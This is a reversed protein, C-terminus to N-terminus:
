AWKPMNVFVWKKGLKLPTSITKWFPGQPLPLGSGAYSCMRNVIRFLDGGAGLSFQEKEAELSSPGTAHSALLSLINGDTSSSARPASSMPRLSSVVKSKFFGELLVKWGRDQKGKFSQSGEPGKCCEFIGRIGFKDFIQGSSQKEPNWDPPGLNTLFRDFIQFNTRLDNNEFKRCIKSLQFGSFFCDEPCIKSLNPTRPM